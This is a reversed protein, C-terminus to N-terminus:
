KRGAKKEALAKMREGIQAVEADIKAARKSDAPEFKNTVPDIVSDMALAEALLETLRRMDRVFPQRPDSPLLEVEVLDEHIKRMIPAHVIRSREDSEQESLQGAKVVEQEKGIEKTARDFDKIARELARESRAIRALDYPASPASAAIGVTAVVMVLVTTVARNRMARAYTALDFREPLIYAALAGGLLGGIHAANDIGPTTLGQMLSYFVFVGVGSILQKSFNRPLKDRHQLVAVLLAGTVGFVAGSAGVSVFTQASFHLSFASGLLGAGLYVILYLRIGYIREVLTGAAYLGLMNMALHMLGSHLFTASLLRWWEGKQVESAANGGWLLLKDAPTGLASAGQTLGIVWILVNITVLAWTAWTKPALATLREQFEREVVLENSLGVSIPSEGAAHAKWRHIADLLREQDETTYPGLNLIPQAANASSWFSQRDPRQENPTLRFKLVQAGQVNELTVSQLESWAFRKHQGSLCDARMGDRDLTIVGHSSSTQRWILWHVLGAILLGGVLVLLSFGNIAFAIAIGIAIGFWTHVRLKGIPSSASPSFSEPIPTTNM